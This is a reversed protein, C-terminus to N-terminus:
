ELRAAAIGNLGPGVTDLSEQCSDQRCREICYAGYLGNEKVKGRAHRIHANLKLWTTRRLDAGAFRGSLGDAM